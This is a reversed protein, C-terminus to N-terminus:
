DAPGLNSDKHVWWKKSCQLHPRSAPRVMLADSTLEAMAPTTTPTPLLMAMQAIGVKNPSENLVMTVLWTFVVMQIGYALYWSGTGAFYYHLPKM